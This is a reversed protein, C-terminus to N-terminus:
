REASRKVSVAGLADDVGFVDGVPGERTLSLVVNGGQARLYRRVRERVIKGVQGSTATERGGDLVVILAACQDEWPDAQLAAYAVRHVAYYPNLRAKLAHVLADTSASSGSPDTAAYVLVQHKHPAM